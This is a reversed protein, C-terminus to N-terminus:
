FSHIFHQRCYLIKDLEATGLLGPGLKVSVGKLAEQQVEAVERTKKNARILM